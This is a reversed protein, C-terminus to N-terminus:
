LLKSLEDILYVRPAFIAKCMTVLRSVAEIAVFVAIIGIFVPALIAPSVTEHDSYSPKERHWGKEIFMKIFRYAGYLGLLMAVAWIANSLIGWAIYEQLVLPLQESVFAGAQKVGELMESLFQNVIDRTTPEQQEM